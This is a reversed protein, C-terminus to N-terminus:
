VQFTTDLQACPISDCSQPATVPRWGISYLCVEQGANGWGQYLDDLSQGFGAPVTLEVCDFSRQGPSGIKLFIKEECQTLDVEQLLM